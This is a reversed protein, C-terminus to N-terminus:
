GSKLGRLKYSCTIYALLEPIDLTKIEQTYFFRFFKRFAAIRRSSVHWGAVNKGFYCGLKVQYLNIVLIYLLNTSSSM